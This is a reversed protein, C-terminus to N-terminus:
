RPTTGSIPWDSCTSIILELLHPTNQKVAATHLLTSPYGPIFFQVSQFPDEDLGLLWFVRYLYTIMQNVKFNMIDVVAGDDSWETYILRISNNGSYTIKLVDDRKGSSPNRM